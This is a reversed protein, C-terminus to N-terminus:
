TRSICLVTLSPPAVSHASAPWRARVAQVASEGVRIRWRARLRALVIVSVLLALVCAMWAMAHDDGCDACGSHDAPGEALAAAASADLGAGVDAAVSVAPAHGTITTHTNFSHMALLGAIIAATVAVLLLVTRTLTRPGRVQKAVAILSM